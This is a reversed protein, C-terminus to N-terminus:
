APPEADDGPDAGLAANAANAYEGWQFVNGGLLVIEGDNRMRLLATVVTGKPDKESLEVGQSELISRIVDAHLPTRADKLVTEIASKIRSRRRRRVPPPLIETQNELDALARDISMLVRATGARRQDLDDLSAQAKERLARLHAKIGEVSQDFEILDTGLEQNM